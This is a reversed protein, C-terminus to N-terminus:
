FYQTSPSWMIYYYTFYGFFGAFLFVYSVMVKCVRPTRIKTTPIRFLFNPVPGETPGDPVYCTLDELNLHAHFPLGLSSSWRGCPASDSNGYHDQPPYSGLRKIVEIMLNEEAPKKLPVQGETSISFKFM